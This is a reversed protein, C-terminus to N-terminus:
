YLLLTRRFYFQKNNCISFINHSVCFFIFSVCTEMKCVVYTTAADCSLIKINISHIFQVSYVLCILTHSSFSVRLLTTNYMAQNYMYRDTFFCLFVFPFPWSNIFNISANLAICYLIINCCYEKTCAIANCNPYCCM